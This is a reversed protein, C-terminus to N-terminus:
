KINSKYKTSSFCFFIEPFDDDEIISGSTPNVLTIKTLNSQPKFLTFNGSYWYFASHAIICSQLTLFGLTNDNIKLIIINGIPSQISVTVVQVQVCFDNPVLGWNIDIYFKTNNGRVRQNSSTVLSNNM